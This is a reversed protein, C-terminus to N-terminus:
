RRRRVLGALGALMLLGAGAPAPVVRAGVGAVSEYGWRVPIIDVRVVGNRVEYEREFQAFGFHVSNEIEFQIGVTFMEDVTFEGPTGTLDNYGHIARWGEVFNADGDVTDGAGFDQPGYYDVQQNAWPDFIPTGVTSRATQTLTGTGMWIFDGAFDLIHMFFVSGGPLQGVAPQDDAARTINLSQGNIMHGFNPDYLMLAGLEGHNEHVVMDAHASVALGCLAILTL